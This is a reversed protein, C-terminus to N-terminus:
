FDTRIGVGTAIYRSGAYGSMGTGTGIRTTVKEGAHDGSKIYNVSAMLSTQKSLQYKMGAMVGQVKSDDVTADNFVGNNLRGYSLQYTTKAVLYTMGVAYGDQKAEYKPLTSSAVTSKRQVRNWAASANLGDVLKLNAGAVFTKYYDGNVVTGGDAKASNINNVQKYAAGIDFKSGNFFVSGAYGRANGAATSPGLDTQAKFGFGNFSPSYYELTNGTKTAGRRTYVVAGDSIEDVCDLGRYFDGMTQDIVDDYRGAMVMGFNGKLAIFTNRDGFVGTSVGTEDYSGVRPRQEAQWIVSMGNDLKDTGRFGLRSSQDVLRVRTLNKTSDVAGSSNSYEVGTRLSGYITVEAMAIPAVFMSAIVVALTKKM